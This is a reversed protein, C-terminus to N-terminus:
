KSRYKSPHKEEDKKTIGVWSKYFMKNKLAFYYIHKCPAQKKRNFIFDPCTCSNATVSYLGGKSGEIYMLSGQDDVIRSQNKLMALASLIASKQSEEKHIHEPWNGFTHIKSKKPKPRPSHSAHPLPPMVAKNTPPPLDDASIDPPTECAIRSPPPPPSIPTSPHPPEMPNQFEFHEVKESNPTHHEGNKFFRLCFAKTISLGIFGWILWFLLSSFFELLEKVVPITSIKETVFYIGMALIALGLLLKFSFCIYTLIKLKCNHPLKYFFFLPAAIIFFYIIWTMTSELTTKDDPAISYSSSSPRATRNTQDDFNYPCLGNTHQHPPYGHHYHYSIGDHHGGKSDTRGPHAFSVVSLLIVAVIILVVLSQRKKM